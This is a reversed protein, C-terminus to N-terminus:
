LMLCWVPILINRLHKRQARKEERREHGEGTEGGQIRTYGIEKEERRRGDRQPDQNLRQSDRLIVDERQRDFCNGLIGSLM